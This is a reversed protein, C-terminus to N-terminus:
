RLLKLIEEFNKRNHEKSYKQSRDLMDLMNIHINKNELIPLLRGSITFQAFQTVNHTKDRKKCREFDLLVSNFKDKKAAKGATIIIHKVPHHMEEKNVGLSDLVFMQEFVDELVSIVDAKKTKSDNFFDLVFKGDVYDYAFYNNGSFLVKPGINRKNLLRLQAVENDVSDKVDIDPRQIKITIKKKKLLGTYILGRHGKALSIINSVGRRELQKRFSSKAIKYVFLQEFSIGLKNLQEFELMHHSILDEVKTRGTVSSFLLLVFGNDDLYNNVGSLFREIIEYGHQGGSIDTKLDWLEGEQEPLYPPNFIITDFKQKPVNSFLDSKLLKFKKSKPVKIADKCYDIAEQKIDVGIVSTVKRSNLATESLIGSGIGIELVSGRALTEVSKKILFSDEAPEYLM